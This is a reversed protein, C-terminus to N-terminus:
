CCNKMREELYSVKGLIEDKSKKSKFKRGFILVLLFAVAVSVGFFMWSFLILNYAAIFGSPIFLIKWILRREAPIGEELRYAIGVVSGGALMAVVLEWSGADLLNLYIGALIWIWTGSVGVCIPCIKFRPWIKRAAWVGGSIVFISITAIIIM